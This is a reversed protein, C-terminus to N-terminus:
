LTSTANSPVAPALAADPSLSPAAALAPAPALDGNIASLFGGSIAFVVGNAINTSFPPPM